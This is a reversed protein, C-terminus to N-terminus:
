RNNNRWGRLEHLGKRVQLAAHQTQVGCLGEGTHIQDPAEARALALTIGVGRLQGQGGLGEDGFHSYRYNYISFQQATRTISQICM